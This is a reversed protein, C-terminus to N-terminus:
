RTYIAQKTAPLSSIGWIIAKNLLRHPLYQYPRELDILLVMRHYSTRNVAGHLKADDFLIGKGNTWYYKEGGVHLYCEGADKQTIQDGGDEDLSTTPIDLALQYRLLGDHPGVHPQIIKGPKMVSFICSLIEPHDQIIKSTIPCKEMYTLNEQKFLRLPLTTWEKKDEQGINIHYNNLYNVDKQALSNYLNYGEDRIQMWANELEKCGPFIQNCEEETYFNTRISPDTTHLFSSIPITFSEPHYWVWITIIVVILIAVILLIQM